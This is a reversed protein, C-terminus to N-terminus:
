ESPAAPIVVRLMQYLSHLRLNFAQISVICPEDQKHPKTGFEIRIPTLFNNPFIDLYNGSISFEGQSGVCSVLQYQFLKCHDICQQMSLRDGIRFSLSTLPRSRQIPSFELTTPTELEEDSSMSEDGSLFSDAELQQTDRNFLSRQNNIFRVLILAFIILDLVMVVSVCSLCALGLSPIFVCCLSFFLAAINIVGIVCTVVTRKKSPLPTLPTNQTSLYTVHTM